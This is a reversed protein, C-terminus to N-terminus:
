RNQRSARAEAGGQVAPLVTEALKRMEEIVGDPTPRGAGARIPMAILHHLGAAEYERLRGIVQDATGSVPVGPQLDGGLRIGALMSVEIEALTRGRRELEAGVRQVQEAVMVPTSTITQYGDGLRAVRRAAVEGWGGVWLPIHGRVPQPRFGAAEFSAFRGSFSVPGDSSWLTKCIALWEDTVRGRVPYWDGIGLAEFEERMWGVGVGLRLRGQAIQDITALMKALVLPNRYPVILVSTGIEVRQTAAAVAGLMALPDYIEQRWAFGAVGSENYPYRSDIEAPMVIHDHVWVSDFGLQEAAVAVRVQDAADGAKGFQGFNGITIGLKM